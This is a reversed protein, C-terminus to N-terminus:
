RAEDERQTRIRRIFRDHFNHHLFTVGKGADAFFVQCVRMLPPFNSVEVPKLIRIEYRGALFQKKGNM